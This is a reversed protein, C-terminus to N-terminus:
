DDCCDDKIVLPFFVDTINSKACNQSGRCDACRSTTLKLFLFSPLLSLTPEAPKGGSM